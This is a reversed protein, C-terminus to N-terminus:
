LPQVNCMLLVLLNWIKKSESKKLKFKSLLLSFDLLKYNHKLYISAFKEANWNRYGEEDFSVAGAEFCDALTLMMSTLSTYANKIENIESVFIIPSSKKNDWDGVVCLNSADTQFIPFLLRGVYKVACEEVKDEFIPLIEIATELSCFAMEEYPEGFIHTYITQTEPAHGRSWQYLEYVEDPLSFPLTRTIEQIEELSLGSTISDAVAPYNSQLWVQIQNLADTLSSM